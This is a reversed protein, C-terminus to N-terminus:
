ILTRSVVRINIEKYNLADFGRKPIHVRGSVDLRKDPFSIGAIEVTFRSTDLIERM